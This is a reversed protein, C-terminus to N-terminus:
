NILFHLFASGKRLKVLKNNSKGESKGGVKAPRVEEWAAAGVAAVVAGRSARRSVRVGGRGALRLRTSRGLAQSLAAAFM